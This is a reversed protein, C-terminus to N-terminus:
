EIEIFIGPHFRIINDQPLYRTDMSFVTGIALDQLQKPLVYECLVGDFSTGDTAIGPEIVRFKVRVSHFPLERQNM